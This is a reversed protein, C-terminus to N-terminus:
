LLNNATKAFCDKYKTQKVFGAKITPNQRMRKAMNETFKFVEIPM